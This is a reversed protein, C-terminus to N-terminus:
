VEAKLIRFHIRRITQLNSTFLVCQNLNRKIKLYKLLISLPVIQYRMFTLFFLHYKKASLHIECTTTHTYLFFFFFSLLIRHKTGDFLDKKKQTSQAKPVKRSCHFEVHCRMGDHRNFQSFLHPCFHAWLSIFMLFIFHLIKKFISSIRM